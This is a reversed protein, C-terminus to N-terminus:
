VVVVPPLDCLALSFLPQAQVIDFIHTWPTGSVLRNFDLPFPDFTPHSPITLLAPFAPRHSLRSTSLINVAKQTESGVVRTLSHVFLAHLRTLYIPVSDSM